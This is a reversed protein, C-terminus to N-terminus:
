RRRPRMAAAVALLLILLTFPADHETARFRCGCGSGGDGGADTSGGDSGGGPGADDGGGVPVVRLTFDRTATTGAADGVEITVTSTGPSPPTGTLRGDSALTIGDPLSGASVVWTYPRGGGVAQLAVDYLTGVEADPLKTTVISLSRPGYGPPDAGAEYAGLDPATGLYGDNIGPLAIGADIANCGPALTMMTIPGAAPPAAQINFGELCTTADIAIGNPEIGTGAVFTAVDDYRVNDWKFAYVYGAWDFGDYDLNTRWDPQGPNGNEWAYWGDVSIWLNNNSWAGVLQSTSNSVVQQWGVFTNHLIVARDMDRIKIVNEGAVVQNRIVYWPAGNMPQFSIGNNAANHIRNGWMRVNAPGYDPEIGDDSVDFIDNGYIDCGAGPYSVGDAVRSIRNYAVIHGDGKNLEVGEGSLSGSEPAVDGVIVNDTIIWGSSEQKPYVCYHCGTITNRTIVADVPNLYTGKIGPEGAAVNVQVGELWTYSASLEVGELIVDGDGAAKWVIYRGPEGPVDLDIRGGYNGAHLLFIDGPAAAAGAAAIGQYPDAETGSGGGTGPTVHLTRGGTPLAPLARTTATLTEVTDGGDPDTFSLRLEYTTGPELFLVSGAVTNAGKFDVRLLPLFESWSATGQVRYAVACAADHNDDGTLQWQVGISHFTTEVAFTGPTSAPQAGADLPWSALALAALLLMRRM